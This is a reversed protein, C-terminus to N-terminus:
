ATTSPPLWEDIQRSLVETLSDKQKLFSAEGHAKLWECTKTALEHLKTASRGVSLSPSEELVASLLQDPWNYSLLADLQEDSLTLRFSNASQRPDITTDHKFLAIENGDRATTTWCVIPGMVRKRQDWTLVAWVSRMSRGDAFRFFYRQRDATWIYTLTTLHRELDEAAIDTRLENAAWRRADDNQLRAKLTIAEAVDAAVLIPGVAEARQDNLFKYLSYPQTAQRLAEQEEELLASGDFLLYAQTM